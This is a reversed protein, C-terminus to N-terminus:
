RILIKYCAKAGLKIIDPNPFGLIVSLKRM